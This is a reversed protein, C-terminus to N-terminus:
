ASTIWGEVVPLISCQWYTIVFIYVHLFLIKWKCFCETRRSGCALTAYVCYELVSFMGRRRGGNNPGINSKGGLRKVWTTSSNVTFDLGSHENLGRHISPPPASPQVKVMQPSRLHHQVAKGLTRVGTEGYYLPPPKGAPRERETHVNSM